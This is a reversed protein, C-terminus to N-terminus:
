NYREWRLLPDDEVLAGHGCPIECAGGSDASLGCGVFRQAEGRAVIRAPIPERATLGFSLALAFQDRESTIEIASM